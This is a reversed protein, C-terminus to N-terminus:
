KKALEPRPNDRPALTRCIYADSVPEQWMALAEAPSRHVKSGCHLRNLAELLTDVLQQHEVAAQARAKGPAGGGPPLPEVPIAPQTPQGKPAPQGEPAPQQTGAGKKPTQSDDVYWQDITSYGIMNVVRNKLDVSFTYYQANGNSLRPPTWKVVKGTLKNVSGTRATFQIGGQPTQDMFRSTFLLVPLNKFQEVVIMQNHYQDDGHWLFEGKHDLAIFWGNVPLCRTGNGFNNSIRTPAVKQNLAVYYREGDDLFLPSGLEKLDDATIRYQVLKTTVLEKQTRLDVVILKGTTREIVGAYYWEETQLPVPDGEFTRKWEDKGTQCDYLRM